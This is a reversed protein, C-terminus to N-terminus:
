ELETVIARPAIHADVPTIGNKKWDAVIKKETQADFCVAIGVGGGGSGSFKGAAKHQEAINALIELKPTEFGLGSLRSLDQLLRRNHRLGKMIEASNSSRFYHVIREVTDKIERIILDYAARRETKTADMKKIMEKTSTDPGTYGLLLRFNKPAKLPELHLAPWKADVVGHLKKNAKFQEALWVPDFRKYHMLGGFTSAAVDFGSGVKGQAEFHAICALKFVVELGKQTEVNQDHFELIAKIIGVCSAASSGFGVKAVTGDTTAVVCEQSATTIGFTRIFVKKDSLYRLTTSIAHTAILLKEKEADDVADTWAFRAGDFKGHKPAIKLDPADLVIGSAHPELTVSVGKDIAAVICPVGAELVAWEGAIMMKGPINFADKM